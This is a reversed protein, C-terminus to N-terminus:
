FPGTAAMREAAALDHATNVNFFLREPAGVTAIVNAPIATISPFRRLVSSMRLDGADLAAEIIPLCAPRYLACFPEPGSGSEPVTVFAADRGRDQILQLLAATVFPMDWAVVMVDDNAYSLASHIGVLSGREERLDSIVRVGDLWERAEPANSIVVLHSADGIARRLANAVRDIIREGGVRLLGKAEGGFRSSAGGAIVAGIV